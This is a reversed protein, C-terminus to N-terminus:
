KITCTMAQCVSVGAVCACRYYMCVQLCASVFLCVCVCVNTGCLCKSMCVSVFLCADFRRVCEIYVRLKHKVGLGVGRVSMWVSLKMCVFVFM